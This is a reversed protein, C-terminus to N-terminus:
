LFEIRCFNFGNPPLHDLCRQACGTLLPSVSIFLLHMIDAGGGYFAMRVTRTMDHRLLWKREVGQQALADGVAFLGKSVDAPVM